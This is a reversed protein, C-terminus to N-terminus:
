RFELNFKDFDREDPTIEDELPNFIGQQIKTKRDTCNSLKIVFDEAKMNLIDVPLRRMM